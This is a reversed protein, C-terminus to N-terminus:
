SNVEVYKPKNSFTPWCIDTLNLNIILNAHTRVPPALTLKLLIKISIQIFIAIETTLVQLYCFAIPTLLPDNLFNCLTNLIYAPGKLLM